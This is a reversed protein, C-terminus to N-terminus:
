KRVALMREELVQWKERSVRVSAEKCRLIVENAYLYGALAALEAASLNIWEQNLQLSYFWTRYIREVFAQRIRPLESDDPTRTQLIKLRDLLLKFDVGHLIKAKELDRALAFTCALIRACNNTRGIARERALMRALILMRALVLTSTSNNMPLAWALDLDLARALNPDLASTLAFLPRDITLTLMLAAARKVAPKFAGDSRLTKQDAWVLLNQLNPTNILKQATIEMRELLEDSNPMLGAVLLFVERWRQQTLHDVVLNEIQRYDQSIYQATLYEQLTLHSFSFVDEAREVLIGQQTAIEDLIARGDLYKPKDVTDALFTKIQEVLEQQTFFLQDRDFGYYAIESLLVKELDTNLGQYIEGPMIRKEAAWEELLIDLAKRYLTARNVPFSQTRNYVLCLFTLLLPTQALEKAPRNGAENLIEWCRDATGSLQDHESQFWNRIFQYIQEDDFDALEIDVFHQFSSRYAAIRCSAVFRNKDYRTVFTQIAEIMARQHAKPVEDLGDLLILLQGQELAKLAFEECPPFGFNQFEEIVATKLDIADTNFRKLELFVPICCYGFEGNDGKLAELGLKRLFTSKGAGPGGLVMLYQHTHAVTAGDQNSVQRSQLRRDSNERFARELAELSAFQRISLADLFRVATYVSELPVAQQMGLLKLSGHRSIYKQAYRSSAESVAQQNQIVQLLAGGARKAIDLVISTLGSAIPAAFAEMGTM